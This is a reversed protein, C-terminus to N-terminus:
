RFEPDKTGERLRKANATMKRAEALSPLNDPSQQAAKEADHIAKEANDAAVEIQRRQPPKQAM